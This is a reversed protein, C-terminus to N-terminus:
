SALHERCFGPDPNPISSPQLEAISVVPRAKELVKLGYIMGRDTVYIGVKQLAHAFNDRHLFLGSTRNRKIWDLYCDHVADLLICGEERLFCESIFRELGYTISLDTLHPM